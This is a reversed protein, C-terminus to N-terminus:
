EALLKWAGAESDFWGTGAAVQVRYWITPETTRPFWKRRIVISDVIIGVDGPYVVIGDGLAGAEKSLKLM